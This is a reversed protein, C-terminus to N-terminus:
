HQGTFQSFQEDDSTTENYDGNQTQRNRNQAFKLFQVTRTHLDQRWEHLVPTKVVRLTERDNYKLKVKYSHQIKRTGNMEALTLTNLHLASM